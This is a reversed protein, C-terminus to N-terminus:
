GCRRCLEGVGELPQLTGTSSEGHCVYLLVPKHLLLGQMCIFCYNDRPSLQNNITLLNDDHVKDIEDLSFVQDPPCEIVTVVGGSDFSM